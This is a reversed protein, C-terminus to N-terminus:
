GWADCINKQKTEIISDLYNSIFIEKGVSDYKRMGYTLNWPIITAWNFLKRIYKSDDYTILWKYKCKKMIEAYRLHDFSKHLNRWKDSKGYLGSETASYYPPDMFVFVDEDKRGTKAEVVKQYDFNTIKTGKLIDEVEKLQNVNEETLGTEYSHESFGGVLTCGSFAIRNLVFYASAKEKKNFYCMNLKLYKFLEKGNPFKEMWKLTNNIISNSDDRCTAWFNYLEFLLDNIWYERDPYRQRIHFYVSAGGIFPERYEKFDPVLLSINDIARSKGGPYRLPTKIM